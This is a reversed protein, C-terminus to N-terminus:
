SGKRNAKGASPMVVNPMIVILMVDSPVVGSLMIVSLVAIYFPVSLMTIFIGCKACSYFPVAIDNFM